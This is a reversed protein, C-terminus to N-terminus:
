QRVTKQWRLVRAELLSVVVYWFTVILAIGLVARFLLLTDVYNNALITLYGLGSDSVIWEGVIAGIFASTVAIKLAAFIYPLANYLKVHRFVQWRSANLGRMLELTTKDTAQFGQIGNVLTPFFCILASAAIIPWITFGFWIVLLPAIAVIPLSRLFLVYPTLGVEIRRFEAMIAAVILALGNGIMFGLFAEWTTIRAHPILGVWEKAFSTIIVSPTPLIYLPVELIRVAAEWSGVIVVFFIAPVVFAQGSPLSRKLRGVFGTAAAPQPLREVEGM